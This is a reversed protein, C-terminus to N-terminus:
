VRYLNNKMVEFMCVVIMEFEIELFHVLMSSVFQHDVAGFVVLVNLQLAQFEGLPYDLYSMFTDLLLM